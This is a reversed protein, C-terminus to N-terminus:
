KQEGNGKKKKQERRCEGNMKTVRSSSTKGGFREKKNIISVSLIKMINVNHMAVNM